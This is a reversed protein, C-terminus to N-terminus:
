RRIRQCTLTFEVLNGMPGGRATSGLQVDHCMKAHELWQTFASVAAEPTQEREQAQGSMQVTSETGVVLRTLRVAPPFERTLQRFWDLSIGREAVLHHLLRTHTELSEQLALVPQLERWRTELRTLQQTVRRHQFSWIGVGLWLLLTVTALGKWIGAAIRIWVRRQHWARPQLDLTSRREGLTLGCTVAALAADSGVLQDCRLVTVPVGLQKSFWAECHPLRAGEGSLWVRAPAATMAAHTGFAMTRRVESALQELIPQIMALYTTTPIPPQGVTALSQADPIGAHQKLAHAQERTLSLTTGGITVQGMLVDTLHDDGLTVDRAYVVDGHDILAITTRREGIDVFAVPEDHIADLAKATAVLALAAPIVESPTWGIRWLAELEQQLATRECAAVSVTCELEQDIHQQRRLVFQVQAHEVDFPLLSPLQERVADPIRSLDSVRVTLWRLSSIPAALVVHARLRHRRLPRLLQALDRSIAELHPDHSRPYERYGWGTEGSPRKFRWAVKLTRAGLELGIRM